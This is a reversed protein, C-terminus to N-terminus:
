PNGGGGRLPDNWTPGEVSVKGSGSPGIPLPAPPAATPKLGPGASPPANYGPPVIKGFTDENCADPNWMHATGGAMIPTPYKRLDYKCGINCCGELIVCSVCLVISVRNLMVDGPIM